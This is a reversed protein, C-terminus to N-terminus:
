DKKVNSESTANVLVPEKVAKDVNFTVWGDPHSLLGKGDSAGIRNVQIAKPHWTATKALPDLVRISSITGVDKAVASFEGLTGSKFGVKIPIIETKGSKGILSIMPTTRTGTETIVGDGNKIPPSVDVKFIYEVPGHLPACSASSPDDLGMARVLGSAGSGFITPDHHHWVNLVDEIM